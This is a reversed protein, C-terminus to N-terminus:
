STSLLFVLPGLTVFLGVVIAIVISLIDETKRLVLVLAVLGLIVLITLAFAVWPLMDWLREFGKFMLAGAIVAVVAQGFLVAWQVGASRETKDKEAKRDKKARRSAPAEPAEDPQDNREFLSEEPTKTLDPKAPEDEAEEAVRAESRARAARAEVAAEDRAVQEERMLDGAVTSGSILEPERTTSSWANAPEPAPKNRAEPPVPPTDSRTRPEWHPRAHGTSSHPIRSDDFLSPMEETPPVLPEPEATSKSKSKSKSKAKGAKPEPAPEPAPSPAQVADVTADGLDASHGPQADRIVPIDGTLESVSIAGKGGRRRRSGESSVQQGNRALLEAVSIQKPEDAATGNGTGNADTM